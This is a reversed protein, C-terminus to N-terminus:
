AIVAALVADQAIIGNYTTNLYKLLEIVKVKMEETQFQKLREM